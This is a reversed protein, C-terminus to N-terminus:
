KSKSKIKKTSRTSPDHHFKQIKNLYKKEKTDNNEIISYSSIKQFLNSYFSIIKTEM